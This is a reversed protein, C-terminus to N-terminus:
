GQKSNHIEAEIKQTILASLDGYVTTLYKRADEGLIALVSNLTQQLATKQAEKDFAGQKKLSEVYTQNTATVCVSITEGLLNIYKNLLDNDSKEIIENCKSKIFSVFYATLIGLLPIICLKFIEPFITEFSM